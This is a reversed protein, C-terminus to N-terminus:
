KSAVKEDTVEPAKEESIEPSETKEENSDKVAETEEPAEKNDEKPAPPAKKDSKEKKRPAKPTAQEVKILPHEIKQAVLLKAVSNTPQAGKGLWELVLDKSIQCQKTRPDYWGLKATIHGKAANTRPIVVVQYHPENKRGV